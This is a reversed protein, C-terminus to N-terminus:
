AISPISWIRSRTTAPSTVENDLDGIAVADLAVSVRKLGRSVTLSIWIAGFVAIVFAVIAVTLLTTRSTAYLVDGGADAAKMEGRQRTVMADVLDGMRDSAARAAGLSIRGAELNKNELALAVAQDAAAKYSNWEARVQAYQARDTDDALPPPTAILDDARARQRRMINLQSRLMAPDDTIALSKEALAASTSADNFQQIRDLATVPDDVMESMADNISGLQTIGYGVVGALLILVVAFTAGLKM